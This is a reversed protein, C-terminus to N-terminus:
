TVTVTFSGGTAYGHNLAFTYSPSLPLPQVGSGDGYDVTGVFTDAAGPDTFSGTGAFASGAQITVDPGADVAPAVNTVTVTVEDSGVGGDDDMVKLTVAYMGDDDPT